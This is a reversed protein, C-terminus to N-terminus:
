RTLLGFFESARTEARQNVTHFQWKVAQKTETPALIAFAFVGFALLYLAIRYNMRIGKILNPLQYTSLRAVRLSAM